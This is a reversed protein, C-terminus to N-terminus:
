NCGQIVCYTEIDDFLKKYECKMAFACTHLKTEKYQASGFWEVM